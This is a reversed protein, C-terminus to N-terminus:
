SEGKLEGVTDRLSHLDSRVAGVILLSARVSRNETSAQWQLRM